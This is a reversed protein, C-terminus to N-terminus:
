NFPLFGEIDEPINMFGDEDTQPATSPQSNSQANKSECFELSDVIVDTTYHNQGDKEYKGTKLRGTIAYKGGKHTYKEITEATKGFAVCRIFDATDEGEKKFRRDVALTFSAVTKDGNHKVDADTTMRGILIVLNM